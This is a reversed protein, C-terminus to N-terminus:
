LTLGMVLHALFGLLLEPTNRLQQMAQDFDQIHVGDQLHGLTDWQHCVKGASCDEILLEYCFGGDFWQWPQETM